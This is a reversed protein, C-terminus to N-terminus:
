PESFRSPLPQLRLGCSQPVGGCFHMIARHKVPVIQLVKQGNGPMVARDCSSFREPETLRRHLPAQGLQFARDPLWQDLTM